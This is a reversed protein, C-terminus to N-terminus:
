KGELQEIHKEALFRADDEKTYKLVKRYEEIAKQKEGEKEYMQANLYYAIDINKEIELAKNLYEKTKAYDNKDFYVMAAALYVDPNDPSSKLNNKVIEEAKDTEGNNLLRLIDHLESYDAFSGLVFFVSLVFGFFLKKM